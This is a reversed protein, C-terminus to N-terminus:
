YAGPVLYSLSFANVCRTPGNVKASARRTEVLATDTVGQDETPRKDGRLDTKRNLYVGASSELGGVGGGFFCEIFYRDSKAARRTQVLMVVAAVLLDSLPLRGLIM